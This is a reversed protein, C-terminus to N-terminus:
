ALPLTTGSTPPLAPASGPSAGSSDLQAYGRDVADTLREAPFPWASGGADVAEAVPVVQAYLSRILEGVDSVAARQDEVFRRSVPTGHGPLVVSSETLMGVVLDLSAAWDLPFSDAGFSPPASQEILDGAFLADADPVRVVIDGDTHGRGPHALEVYTDGLDITAVSNFTVDPVRLPSTMVDDLIEASIAPEGPEPFPDAAILGRIREVSAVMGAAANEHAHITTEDFAINGLVHDFHQHTNVVWRPQSDPTLRRLDDRLEAGQAATARTDVVLVGASGVVAGVTVDWAAYRAVFCRDAVEVFGQGHAPGM